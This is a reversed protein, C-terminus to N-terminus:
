AALSRIEDAPPQGDDDGILPPLPPPIIPPLPPPLAPPQGTTPPATACAKRRQWCRVLGFSVLWVLVFPWLGVTALCLWCLAYGRVAGVFFRFLPSCNQNNNMTM